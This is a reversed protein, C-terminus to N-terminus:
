LSTKTMEELTVFHCRKLKLAQIIRPLAAVTKGRGEVGAYDASHLLVIKEPGANNVVSAVIGDITNHKIDWDSPDLNWRFVTFGHAKLQIEQGEQIAGWPARFYRNSTGCVNEILSETRTIENMMTKFNMYPIWRHTYSHNGICHGEAHIRRAIDPFTVIRKGILFFTAKVNEKKLIDLVQPTYLADPGDDFTLAIRFDVPIDKRCGWSFCTIYIILVVLRKSKEFM